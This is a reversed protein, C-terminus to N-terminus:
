KDSNKKEKKYTTWNGLDDSELVIKNDQNELTVYYSGENNDTIEFLDTIWYGSYDQKLSAMLSIPLQDSLINRAVAILHGNGSFYAFMVLGNMKFTAKTFASYTEWSLVQANKFEKNFSDRIHDDTGKTANAFSSSIGTVLLLAWTLIRKKM